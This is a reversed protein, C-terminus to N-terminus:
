SHKTYTVYLTTQGGTGDTIGIDMFTGETLYSAGPGATQVVFNIGDNFVTIFAQSWGPGVPPIGMYATDSMAINTNGISLMVPPPGMTIGTSDFKAHIIVPTGPVIGPLDTM